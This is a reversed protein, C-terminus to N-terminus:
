NEGRQFKLHLNDKDASSSSSQPLEPLTFSFKARELVASPPYEGKIRDLFDTFHVIYYQLFQPTVIKGLMEREVKLEYEGVEREPKVQEREYKESLKSTDAGLRFSLVLHKNERSPFIDTPRDPIVLEDFKDALLLGCETLREKVYRVLNDSTEPLTFASLPTVSLYFRRKEKGLGLTVLTSFSVSFTVDIGEVEVTKEGSFLERRLINTLRTTDVTFGEAKVEELDLYVSLPIFLASIVPTFVKIKVNWVNPNEDSPNIKTQVTFNIQHFPPKKCIVHIQPEVSLQVTVTNGKKDKFTKNWFDGFISM